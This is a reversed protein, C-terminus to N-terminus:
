NRLRQKLEDWVIKFVVDTDDLWQICKEPNAWIGIDVTEVFIKPVWAILYQTDGMWGNERVPEEFYAIWTDWPPINDDDFYGNSCVRAAGDALNNEPFYVLMCGEDPLSISDYSPLVGRQSLIANRIRQVDRVFQFRSWYFAYPKIKLSRFCLNPANPDAVINCYKITEIISALLRSLAPELGLPEIWYSIIRDGYRSNPQLDEILENLEVSEFIRM